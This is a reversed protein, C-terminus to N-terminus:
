EGSPKQKNKFVFGWLADQTELQLCGQSGVFHHCVQEPGTSVCWLPCPIQLFEQLLVSHLCPAPTSTNTFCMANWLTAGWWWQDQKRSNELLERSKCHWSCLETFHRCIWSFFCHVMNENSSGLQMYFVQQLHRIWSFSTKWIFNVASQQSSSRSMRSCVSGLHIWM